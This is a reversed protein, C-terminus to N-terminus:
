SDKRVLERIVDVAGPTETWADFSYQLVLQMEALSGLSFSGPRAKLHKGPNLLAPWFHKNLDKVGMYLDQVQVDLDDILQAQDKANMINKKEAILSGSVMQARVSDLIEQPVKNGIMSSNQLARVDMLLRIKLLTIATRHSLCGYERLFQERPSEFVDANKVDLYPNDLNGWDYHGDQGTTAWWKCFDYCEQDRGLRLGLAPVQDRVGMNDSRCLRLMDMMHGHAAEVATYTKIKLLAEVLAYRARMYGRTEMIGWFHGAHEEFLHSPTMFDAPLSRLRTEERDLAKQSKKIANCAQKHNDRHAVQDDRGCYYVVKCAQCLLLKSESSDVDCYSCRSISSLTM